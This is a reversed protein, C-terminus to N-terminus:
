MSKELCFLTGPYVSYLFDCFQSYTETGTSWLFCLFLLVCIIFSPEPTVNPRYYPRTCKVIYATRPYSDWIGFYDRVIVYVYREHM